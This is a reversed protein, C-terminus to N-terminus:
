NPYPNEDSALRWICNDALVLRAELDFHGMRDIVHDLDVPKNIENLIDGYTERALFYAVRYANERIESRVTLVLPDVSSPWIEFSLGPSQRSGMYLETWTRSSVPISDGDSDYSHREDGFFYIAFVRFDPREGKVKVRLEFEETM